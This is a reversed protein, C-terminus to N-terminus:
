ICEMSGDEKCKFNILKKMLFAKIMANKQKYMHSLKKGLQYANTDNTIHQLVSLDM